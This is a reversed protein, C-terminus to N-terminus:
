NISRHDGYSSDWQSQHDESKEEQAVLFNVNTTKHSIKSNGDFKAAVNMDGHHDGLPAIHLCHFGISNMSM